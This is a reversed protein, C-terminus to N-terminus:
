NAIFEFLKSGAWQHITMRWSEPVYKCWNPSAIGYNCLAQQKNIFSDAWCFGVSKM